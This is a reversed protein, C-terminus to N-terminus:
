KPRLEIRIRADTSTISVAVPGNLEVVGLTLSGKAELNVARTLTGKPNVARAFARKGSLRCSATITLRTPTSADVSAECRGTTPLDMTEVGDGAPAPTFTPLDVEVGPAVLAAKKIAGLRRPDFPAVDHVLPTVDHALPATDHVLPAVSLPVEATPVPIPGPANAASGVVLLSLGSGLLVAIVRRM